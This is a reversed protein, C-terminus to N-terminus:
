GRLSLFGRVADQVLDEAAPRGMADWFVEYELMGGYGAADLARLFGGVDVQGRDLAARRPPGGDAPLDVGCIQVVRLLGPAQDLLAELGADWHSHFLDLTLGFGPLPALAARAADIQNLVSRLGLAMPHMPELALVAGDARAALGALARRTAARLAAPDAGGPGPRTHLLGGPIVNVPAGLLRGTALLRAELAAQAAAEAPDAHLLYGASNLSAARLGHRTLMAAIAEPALAAFVPPTLGIGGIGHRALLACFDEVPLDPPAGYLSIALRRLWAREPAGLAGSM